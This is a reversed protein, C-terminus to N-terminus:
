FGSIDMRSPSPPGMNRRPSMYGNQAMRPSMPMPGGGMPMMRPPYGGGGNRNPMSRGVKNAIVVGICIGVCAYLICFVALFWAEVDNLPRNTRSNFPTTTAAPTTTTSTTSGM